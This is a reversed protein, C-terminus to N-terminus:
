RMRELIVRSWREIKAVSGGQSRNYLSLIDTKQQDKLQAKANEYGGGVVLDAAIKGIADPVPESCVHGNATTLISRKTADVTLSKVAGLKSVRLTYVNSEVVRSYIIGFTIGVILALGPLVYRLIQPWAQRLVPHGSM